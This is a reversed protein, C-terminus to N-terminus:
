CRDTSNPRRRARGPYYLIDHQGYIMGIETQLELGRRRSAGVKVRGVAL